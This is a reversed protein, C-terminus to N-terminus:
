HPRMRLEPGMDGIANAAPPADARPGNMRAPTDARPAADARVIPPMIASSKLVAGNSGGSVPSNGRRRLRGRRSM